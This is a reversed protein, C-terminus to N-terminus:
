RRGAITGITVPQNLRARFSQEASAPVVHLTTASCGGAAAVVPLANVTRSSGDSFGLTVFARSVGAGLSAFDPQVVMQLPGNPTVTANAPVNRPRNGPVVYTQGSGYTLATGTPNSM